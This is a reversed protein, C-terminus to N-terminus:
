AALQRTPQDLGPAMVTVIPYAFVVGAAALLSTLLLVVTLFIHSFEQARNEEDRGFSNYIPIFCGLIAASLLM